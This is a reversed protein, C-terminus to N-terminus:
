SIIQRGIADQTRKAKRAGKAAVLRSATAYVGRWRDLNVGEVVGGRRFDGSETVFTRPQSPLALALARVSGQRKQTGASPM